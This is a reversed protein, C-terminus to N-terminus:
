GARAERDGRAPRPKGVTLGRSHVQRHCNPHLLVQNDARDSGGHSRWVPHHIHWGTQLTIWQRCIPCQGAQEGWLSGFRQNGALSQKLTMGHRQEFYLEWVPDYPNAEARVKVHRQIPVRLASFLRVTRLAGTTDAVEGTFVWRRRGQTRFYRERVWRANKKPHRRKAWQWIVRFVAADVAAFTEKSVVHRHYQAWGRLLPNLQCILNGVKAQRNAKVLARVQTLLAMVSKKSPKILLKGDYKRVHQGLFDFGAAIHTIVTKEPSLSLGRERLFSEVLPKVEDELVERSAGTIIFDDAFRVLNVKTTSTQRTPPFRARLLPELGNLTLNAAMPSLPGGQPTGAETPHLAHKEIFGAKLWKRLLATDMPVHALLWDHSIEDFCSRIDGDLIWQPASRNSLVIFCQAIADAPSRECRFGYSNPDSTVEASPDLALLYLTQMARDLMAPIGLPRRKASGRKPITVRRLPQPQYGRRRLAQVAAAKQAPTNWTAGDVGPTHKGPNETVRRVAMAKASFSRTLLRQLAKVKGWRGAQTAQVIRAQLRRVIRHAQPWNIAHWDLADRSAAGPARAATRTTATPSAGTM